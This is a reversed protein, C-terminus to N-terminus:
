DDVKRFAILYTILKMSLPSLLFPILWFNLKFDGMNVVIQCICYIGLIILGCSDFKKHETKTQCLCIKGMYKLTIQSASPCDHSQGLALLYGQIIYNIFGMFQNVDSLIVVAFDYCLLITDMNQTGNEIVSVSNYGHFNIYYVVLIYQETLKRWQVQCVKWHVITHM